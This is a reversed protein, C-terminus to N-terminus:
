KGLFQILNGEHDQIIVNARQDSSAPFPGFAITVNGERLVALTEDFNEVVVGAKFIGHVLTRDKIAPAAENLSIAADQQILEVIM